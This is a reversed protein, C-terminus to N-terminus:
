VTTACFGQKQATRCVLSCGTSDYVLSVIELHVRIVVWGQLLAM